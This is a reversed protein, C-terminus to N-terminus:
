VLGLAECVRSPAPLRPTPTGTPAFGLPLDTRLRILERWRVADEFHDVILSRVDELTKGACLLLAAKSMGVGPVGPIGDSPDGALARLDCWQRATVGYQALLSNDDILSPKGRPNVVGVTPGILQYYDRDTSLVRVPRGNANAALTAIVDDAEHAPDEINAVGASGLTARIEPLWGMFSLDKDEYSRNSKYSADIDLRETWADAGDFCVVCEAFVGHTGLARRLLTIFRFLPTLDRGDDAAFPARWGHAARWLLNNGDVLFLTPPIADFLGGDRRGHLREPRSLAVRRDINVHARAGGRAM